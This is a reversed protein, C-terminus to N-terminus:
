FRVDLVLIPINAELSELVCKVTNPGGEVVVVVTPVPARTRTTTTTEGSGEFMEREFRFRLKIEGGFMNLQSNDVLLFHTHNPDLYQTKPATPKDGVQYKVPASEGDDDDDVDNVKTTTFILIM